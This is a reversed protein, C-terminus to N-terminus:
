IECKQRLGHREQPPLNQARQPREDNGPAPAPREKQMQDGNDFVGQWEDNQLEDEECQPEADEQDFKNLAPRSSAFWAAALHSTTTRGCLSPSGDSPASSGARRGALDWM